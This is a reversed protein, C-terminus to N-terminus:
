VLFGVNLLDLKSNKGSLVKQVDQLQLTQQRWSHEHTEGSQSRQQLDQQMRSVPAARESAGGPHATPARGSFLFEGPMEPLWTTRYHRFPCFLLKAQTSLSIYWPVWTSTSVTFTRSISPYDMPKNSAKGANGASMRNTEPTRASTVRWNSPSRSHPQATNVATCKVQLHLIQLINDHQNGWLLRIYYNSFGNLGGWGRCAEEQHPLVSRRGCFLEHWLTQLPLTKRGHTSAHPEEPVLHCCVEGWVGWM